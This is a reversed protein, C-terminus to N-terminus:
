RENSSPPSDEEKPKFGSIEREGKGNEGERERERM